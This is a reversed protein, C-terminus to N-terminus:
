RGERNKRKLLIEVDHEFGSGGQLRRWIRRVGMSLLVGLILGLLLGLLTGVITALVPAIM